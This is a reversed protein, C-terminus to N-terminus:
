IKAQEEEGTMNHAVGEIPFEMRAETWGDDLNRLDFTAAQGYHSLLRDTINGLGVGPDGKGTKLPKGTGSDTVTVVLNEGNLGPRKAARIRIEGGLRNDSIGHKIANEVLPQLILTPVLTARLEQPVDVNVRLREEFRAKEIELYSEILGIEDALTWFESTKSLVGRLLKTLQLLTQFAKDPSANILYGITTLANFLFHPNVQARLATLQAEAALKSFEQERFEQECREHDVRLADIRRATALSVAALMATEDSLLRRGGQFEGLEVIYHPEEATPITVRATDPTFDVTAERGKRNGASGTEWRSVNATLAVSLRSCVADLISEASDLGEIEANLGTQLEAYDSRHLIVKDVLWVAVRHLMPYALATAIWLVLILSVAQVDNRDHTEHYRLLPAAVLTYLGFAVITLLIISVARKLFLDAFAFRYNQYLIVLVLPLSSQHAVLEVFWSAQENKAVFHLSALAFILLASAWIAKKGIKERFYLVVLALAFTPAGVTLLLMAKESPVATGAMAAYFHLAAAVTSLLYAAFTVIRKGGGEENQASHVVVSPLFGLAAYSAATLMSLDAAVGFDRLVFVILESLNWILGLLATTLLLLRSGSTGPGGKHRIVMAGLLSFLAVGVLFGLWNVLTAAHLSYM